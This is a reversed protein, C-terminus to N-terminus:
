ETWGTEIIKGCTSCGGGEYARKHHAAKAEAENPKVDCGYNSGPKFKYGKQTLYAYFDDLVSQDVLNGGSPLRRVPRSTQFVGTYYTDIGAGGSTSCSIFPMGPRASSSQGSSSPSAPAAPSATASDTSDAASDTWQIRIVETRGAAWQQEFMHMTNAQAAANNSIQPCQGLGGQIKSLDYKAQMYAYFRQPLSGHNSEQFIPTVYTIPHADKTGFYRCFYSAQGAGPAQAYAQANLLQAALFFIPIFLSGLYPLVRTRRM